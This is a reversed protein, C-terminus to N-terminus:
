PPAFEKTFSPLRRAFEYVRLVDGVTRLMLRKQGRRLGEALKKRLEEMCYWVYGSKRQMDKQTALFSRLCVSSKWPSRRVTRACGGGDLWGGSPIAVYQKGAISYTSPSGHIGSGTQFQWLLEGSCAHFADFEGTLEGAFVLDGATVLVSGLMPQKTKWLRVESGTVPNFAKSHGCQATKVPIAEGGLLSSERPIRHPQVQLGCVVRCAARLPAGNQLQLRRTVV